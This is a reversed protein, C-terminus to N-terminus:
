RNVELKDAKTKEIFEKIPLAHEQCLTTYEYGARCIYKFEAHYSLAGEYDPMTDTSPIIVGCVYCYKTKM